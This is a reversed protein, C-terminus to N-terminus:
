TCNSGLIRLLNVAHRKRVEDLGLSTAEQLSQTAKQRKGIGLYAMGIDWWLVANNADLNLGQKFVEIAEFYRQCRNYFEGLVQYVKAENPYKKKIACLRKEVIITQESSSVNEIIGLLQQELDSRITDMNEKLTHLLASARQKHNEDLGLSEAKKLCRAADQRKGVGLYAMAIDWLVSANNADIKLGRTFVEIAEPYRQCRNLFEGLRQYARPEDSYKKVIQRLREETTHTQELSDEYESIVMLEREIESDTGEAFNCLAQYMEKANKYRTNVEKELAKDIIDSLYKPVDAKAEDASVHKKSRILDALEGLGSKPSWFPLKGTIMEYLTVGVSWIDSAFSAGESGLIEPSMYYITGRTSSALENSELMRAIGLDSIKPTDGMILINEPKIDRHFVHAGHIVMLGELLGKTIRIADEIPQPNQHGIKGIRNRLSGGEVYEMVMVNQDCFISFGLYCVLNNSQIETMDMHLRANLVIESQLIMEKELTLPIKLAVVDTKYSEVMHKQLVRAKYTHAFAGSGLHELLQFRKDSSMSRYPEANSM